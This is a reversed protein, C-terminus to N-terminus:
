GGVQGHQVPEHLVHLCGIGVATRQGSRVDRQLFLGGGGRSSDMARMCVAGCDRSVCAQGEAPSSLRRRSRSGLVRGAGAAGHGLEGLGLAGLGKVGGPGPPAGRRLCSSRPTSRRANRRCRPPGDSLSLGGRRHQSGTPPQPRLLCSGAAHLAEEDVRDKHKVGPAPETRAIHVRARQPLAGMSTV